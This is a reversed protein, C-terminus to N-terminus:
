GTYYPVNVLGTYYPVEVAYGHSYLPEFRRTLLARPPRCASRPAGSRHLHSVFPLWVCTDTARTNAHTHERGHTRVKFM